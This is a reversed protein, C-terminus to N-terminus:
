LSTLAADEAILNRSDDDGAVRDVRGVRTEYRHKDVAVRGGFLDDVQWGRYWM